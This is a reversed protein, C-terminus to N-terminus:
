PNRTAVWDSALQETGSSADLTMLHLHDEQVCYQWNGFAGSALLTSGSTAYSGTDTLKSAQFDITCECSAEVKSCVVSAPGDLQGSVSGVVADCTAGALQCAAPLSFRITSSTTVSLAYSQDTFIVSGAVTSTASVLTLLSCIRESYREAVLSPNSCSEVFNWSGSLDGGCGDVSGCANSTASGTGPSCSAVLLLWASGFGAIRM